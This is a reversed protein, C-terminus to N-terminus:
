KICNSPVTIRDQRVLGSQPTVLLSVHQAGATLAGRMMLGAKAAANTNQQSTIQAVIQADGNTAQYAYHFADATGAIDAGSGYVSYTGPIDTYELRGALGTAGVDQHLWPQIVM